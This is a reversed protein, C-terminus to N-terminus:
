LLIHFKNKLLFLLFHKQVKVNVMYSKVLLSLLLIKSSPATILVTFFIRDALCM